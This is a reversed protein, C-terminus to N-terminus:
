RSTGIRARMWETITVLHAPTLGVSSRPTVLLSPLGRADLEEQVVDRLLWTDDPGSLHDDCWVLGALDPGDVLARSVAEWKWWADGAFKLSAAREYTDRDEPDALSPWDRGPFPDMKARMSATWSTLWWCQVRPPDNLEDLRRCLSPSVRVDGFVYGAAVDDGWESAGEIPSVVGDVDLVVAIVAPAGSMGDTM